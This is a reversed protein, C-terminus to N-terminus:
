KMASIFQETIQKPRTIAGGVVVGHCGIELCRKAMEPTKVNGEAIVPAKVQTLLERLFQFDNSFLKCGKTNGTYGHLTSSICDFGLKDAEIADALTAIDAMLLIRPYKLRIAKVLSALTEGKPRARNTADLAIMDPAITMLEDVESMTATIFVESDSYDRKVIGIIPLNVTNKIEIIDKVSNARIGVAGGQKAALAMRGMIFDSHLPESELAQCSVILGKKTRTFFDNM